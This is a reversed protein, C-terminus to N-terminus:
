KLHTSYVTFVQNSDTVANFRVSDTRYNYYIATRSAPTKSYAIVSDNILVFTLYEDLVTVHDNDNVIIPFTQDPLHQIVSLTSDRQHVAWIHEGALKPTYPSLDLDKEGCGAAIYTVITILIATLYKM